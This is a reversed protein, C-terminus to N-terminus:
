RPRRTFPLSLRRVPKPAATEVTHLVFQEHKLDVSEVQLMLNGVRFVPSTGNGHVFEPSGASMDFMGDGNLDLWEYGYNVSIGGIEFDYQFRVRLSRGPLTTFGQLYPASTYEVVIQPSKAPPEAENRLLAVQMPCTQFADRSSLNVDFSAIDLLRWFKSNTVPVFAIREGTDFRGNRNADVYLLDNGGPARVIMAKYIYHVQGGDPLSFEGSYVKDEPKATVGLQNANEVSIPNFVAKSMLEPSTYLRPELEGYFKTGKSKAFASGVPALAFLLMLASSLLGKRSPM